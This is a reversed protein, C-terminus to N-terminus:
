DLRLPIMFIHRYAYVQLSVSSIHPSGFGFRIKSGPFLALCKLNKEHGNKLYLM